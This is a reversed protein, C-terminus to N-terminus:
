RRVKSGSRPLGLGGASVKIPAFAREAFYQVMLRGKESKQEIVKRDDNIFFVPVATGDDASNGTLQSTTVEKYEFLENNREQETFYPFGQNQANKNRIFALASWHEVMQTFSNIGRQYNVQQGASLHNQAQGLQTQEGTLVDWPSQPPWWYSYYTPTIPQPTSTTDTVTVQEISGLQLTENMAKLGASDFEGEIQVTPTNLSAKITSMDEDVQEVSLLWTQITQTKEETKLTAKNILPETFNVPQVTCQFFDAQWPCAMRKTLDGPQCGGGECEDRSPTLGTENYAGIGGDHAIVYASEYLNPNQLSWTVEIGPCMPLGVCNGISAKDLPHVAFPAPEPTDEFKGLAWQGLLFLQTDDLAMFKEVTTNSVSNSGSNMPMMPLQGGNVDSFLTEQPKEIAGIKLDPKRFYDYYAQRKSRNAESNDAFNFQYSFFGSMSQVNAVWQYNSIREIIPLIDRKYNAIYDVNFHGNSFLSPVLNKYRVGIDFFTDDLSSINVIEPAFDPSGVVVWAKLTVTTGDKYTVECYVPGDATDDHWTDSGGYSTLAEDGGAHGYGGFVILRGKNDTKLTGLTNVASGYQPKATPFSGHKYSPPISARDFDVGSVNCGSISRPGPDIILSKRNVADANRLPVKRATYSNTEGYLLNGQLESYQYWAAKKNALHVTWVIAEIRDDDLTIETEGDFLKFVQGQRKIRGATDKFFTVPLGSEPELPLGGISEPSLCERSEIKDCMESNGLRAVGVSPHIKLNMMM